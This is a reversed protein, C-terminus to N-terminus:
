CFCVVFPCNLETELSKKKKKVPPPEFIPHPWQLYSYKTVAVRFPYIYISLYFFVSKVFNFSVSLTIDTMETESWPFTDESHGQVELM